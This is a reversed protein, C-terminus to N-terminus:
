QYEVVLDDIVIGAASEVRLQLFSTAGGVTSTVTVTKGVALEALEVAYIKSAEGHLSNKASTTNNDVSIQFKKSTTGTVAVVKFSIKYAKSLDLGGNVTKDADTTAIDATKCGISLRGGKEGGIVLAGSGYNNADIKVAGGGKYYMAIKADDNLAKYTATFFTDTTASDFNDTLIVSSKTESNAALLVSSRGCGFMVAGVLLSGLLSWYVKKMIDNM